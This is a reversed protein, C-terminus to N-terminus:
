ITGIKMSLKEESLGQIALRNLISGSTLYEWTSFKVQLDGFWFSVTFCLAFTAQIFLRHLTAKAHGPGSNRSKVSTFFSVKQMIKNEEEM